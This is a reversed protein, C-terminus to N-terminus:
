EGSVNLVPITDGDKNVLGVVDLESLYQIVINVEDDTLGLTDGDDNFSTFLCPGVIVDYLINDHMLAFVPEFDSRFKGEENIWMDIYISNLYESIVYHEIYGDVKSQLFELGDEFPVVEIHRNKSQRDIGLYRVAYVRENNRTM